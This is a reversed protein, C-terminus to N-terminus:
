AEPQSLVRHWRGAATERARHPCALDACVAAAPAERAPTVHVDGFPGMASARPGDTVVLTADTRMADRLTAGDAGLVAFDLLSGCVVDAERLIMAITRPDRGAWARLSGAADVVVITGDRRARRAARCFAAAKATLPSLGALLLVQASWGPPIEFNRETAGREALLGLEGGAADVVVLGSAPPAFTVGGVDVGRAAMEAILTRGRSDDDLVTVLGVRLEHRALSRAVEFLVARAPGGGGIRDTTWLPEGACLVDFSARGPAHPLPSITAM